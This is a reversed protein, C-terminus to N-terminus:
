RLVTAAEDIRQGERRRRRLSEVRCGNHCAEIWRIPMFTYSLFASFQSNPWHNLHFFTEGALEEAEFHPPPM